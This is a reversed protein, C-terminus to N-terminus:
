DKEEEIRYGTVVRYDGNEFMLLVTADYENGLEQIVFGEGLEKVEEESKREIYDLAKGKSSFTADKTTEPETGDAFCETKYVTYTFKKHIRGNTDIDMEKLVNFEDLFNTALWEYDEDPSISLETDYVSDDEYYPMNIWDFDTRMDDSTWVKIAACIAYSSNEKSHIVTEDRSDFGDSWGVCVALVDDLKLTVCGCEQEKLYEVAEKIEKALTEKTYTKITSM